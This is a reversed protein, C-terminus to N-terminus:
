RAVGARGSATRSLAPARGSAPVGIGGSYRRQPGSRQLAEYRLVEDVTL